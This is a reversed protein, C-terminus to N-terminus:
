SGSKQSAAGEGGRLDLIEQKGFYPKSHVERLSSLKAVIDRVRVAQRSMKELYGLLVASEAGSKVAEQMLDMYGFIGTLPNNIEHGATAAVQLIAMNKELLLVESQLQRIRLGARIRAVLEDQHCPKTLYDDVGANLARVKDETLERSTLLIFYIQRLEERSKVEACLQVGDMAPMMWDSIILDVAPGGRLLELAKYGNDASLVELDRESLIKELLTKSHPDDDVVLVTSKKADTV